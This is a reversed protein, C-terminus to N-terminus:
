SASRHAGLRPSACQMRCCPPETAGREVSLVTGQDELEIRGIEDRSEPLADGQKGDPHDSLADVDIWLERELVLNLQPALTPGSESSLCRRECKRRSISRM